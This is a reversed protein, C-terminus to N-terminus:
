FDISDIFSSFRARLQNRRLELREQSSTGSIESNEYDAHQARLLILTNSKNTNEVFPELLDAIKKFENQVLLTKIGKILDEKNNLSNNDLGKTTSSYLSDTNSPQPAIKGKKLFLMDGGLHKQNRLSDIRPTQQDNAAKSRVQLGLEVGWYYDKSPDKLSQILAEAFPSNKGPIGDLVTTEMGSTLAYRSSYHYVQSSELDNIDRFITGSFCSDIMCYIHRADCQQVLRNIIDNSLYSFEDGKEADYLLWFGQDLSEELVGHGSFYIVLNDEDSIQENLSKFQKAFARKTAESNFLTYCNEPLFNYNELLINKVSKADSVANNLTPIDGQYDDVAIIFLYNKGNPATTKKDDQDISIVDKKVVGEM